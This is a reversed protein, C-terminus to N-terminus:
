SFKWKCMFQWKLCQGDVSFDAAPDHIETLQKIINHGFGHNCDSKRFMIDSCHAGQWIVFRFLFFFFFFVSEQAIWSSISKIAIKNGFKKVCCGAGVFPATASMKLSPAAVVSTWCNAVRFYNTSIRSAGWQSFLAGPEDSSTEKKPQLWQWSM